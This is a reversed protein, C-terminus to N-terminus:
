LSMSPLWTVIQPFITILAVGVFIAIVFPATGLAIDRFSQGAPVRQLVYLILGIPPTLLGVEVLMIVYIGLWLGDVGLANLMPYLVPITLIILSVSEIFLGLIVFLVAIGILLVPTPIDMASVWANLLYPISLMGMVFTLTAACGVILLIAGSLSVSHLCADRLKEWTLARRSFAIVAALFAGVGGAETPTFIGAYIGGLIAVILALLPLLSIAASIADSWQSKSQVHPIAERYLGTWIAITLFFLGALMLAPLVGAIFLDSISVGTLSGYIIMAASPPMLIGM